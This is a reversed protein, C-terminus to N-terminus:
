FRHCLGLFLMLRNSFGVPYSSGHSHLSRSFSSHFFETRIFSHLFTNLDFQHPTPQFPGFVHDSHSILYQMSRFISPIPSHVNLVCYSFVSSLFSIIFVEGCRVFSCCCMIGYILHRRIHFILLLLFGGQTQM